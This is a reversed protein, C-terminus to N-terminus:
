DLDLVVRFGLNSCRISPKDRYRKAARCGKPYSSWDGGRLVRFEGSKPGTPDTAPSDQYYNQGYWDSCFELVNGHMDHLGFANPRFQGVPATFTYGDSWPFLLSPSPVRSFEARASQDAVNCWGVGDEPRDGWHYATDTGARCAYEWESETPLRYRKGERHGLWRCFEVADYWSVCVVPHDDTQAFGPNRLSVGRVMQFSGRRWAYSWGEREAQTEWVADSVFAAFHRRTVETQGMYFGRTLRVKHLPIEDVSEGSRPPASGMHFEGGPVFVMRMGLSNTIYPPPTFQLEDGAPIALAPKLAVFLIIPLSEYM